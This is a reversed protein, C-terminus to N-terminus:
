VPISIKVTTGIGHQTSISLRGGHHQVIRMAITLGLGGGRESKTTVFPRVCTRKRDESMGCGTDSITLLVRLNDTYSTEFTVSDKDECAEIANQGVCSVLDYFAKVRGIVRALSSDLQEIVTVSKTVAMGAQLAGLVDRVIQNFYIETTKDNIDDDSV